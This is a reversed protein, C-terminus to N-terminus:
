LSPVELSTVLIDIQLEADGEMAVIPAVLPITFPTAGPVDIIDAVKAPRFEVEAMILTVAAVKDAIATVDSGVGAVTAIFILCCNTAVAEYLSPEDISTVARAEQLEALLKTAVIAGVVPIAVPILVPVAAIEAVYLPSVEGTAVRVTVAAVITDIATDGAVKEIAAFPLLCNVTIAVILKPGGTSTVVEALQFEAVGPTASIPNFVPRAVPTAAPVDTIVAVKPPTVEGAVVKVTVAAVTTDIATVGAGKEMAAFPLLCNVAIAVMLKPTGCSTVEEAVQAEAIGPTAKIPNCVPKAVPTAAPDDAIVAAKPPTVEGAVIKVTVAAVTTDIATVGAVNEIAALPLL